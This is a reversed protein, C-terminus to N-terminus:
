YLKPNHSSPSFLSLLSIPFPSLTQLLSSFTLLLYASDVRVGITGTEPGLRWDWVPSRAGGWTSRGLRVKERVGWLWSLTTADDFYICVKITGGYYIFCIVVPCLLEVGPYM